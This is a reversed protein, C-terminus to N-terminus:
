ATFEHEDNKPRFCYHSNDKAMLLCVASHRDSSISVRLPNISMRGPSTPVHMSPYSM